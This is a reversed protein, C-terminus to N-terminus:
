AFLGHLYWGDGDRFIWIRQGDPNAAVFYDRRVDGPAESEGDNEGEDWWGSEIREPRSLFQLPGHWHPRGGQENLRQPLPLLWLPRTPPTGPGNSATSRGEPAFIGAAPLGARLRGAAEPRHDASPAPVRVAAAGLRAQLRALCAEAGEGAVIRGFLARSDDGRAEVEDASLSLSYVPQALTYRALTERLLRQLLEPDATPEGPRLSVQGPATGREHQLNLTCARLRLQRAQLWGGLSALLRQAAFALGEALEVRSPLELTTTFHEPFAFPPQPDPREGFARLLDDVAAEGLRQRLSASPLRRVDGLRHLGFADLRERVTAPWDPVTCALVDLARALATGDTCLSGPAGRALWRAGLPTPAVARGADVGQGALGDDLAALLAALGGFLRLCGGIELLLGGPYLSVTPTFAGAWCALRQLAAAEATVDREALMLGPCLGLATALRQGGQM